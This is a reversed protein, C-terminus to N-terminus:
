QIEKFLIVIAVTTAFLGLTAAIQVVDVGQRHLAMIRERQEPTVTM